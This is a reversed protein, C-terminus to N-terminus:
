PRPGLGNVVLESTPQARVPDTTTWIVHIRHATRTADGFAAQITGTAGPALNMPFAPTTLVFQQCTPTMQESCPCPNAGSPCTVTPDATAVSLVDMPADGINEISVDIVDGQFLDGNFDGVRAVPAHSGGTAVVSVINFLPDNSFFTLMGNDGTAVDACSGGAPILATCEEIGDACCVSGRARYTVYLTASEQATCSADEVGAPCIVPKFTAPDIPQTRENDTYFFLDKSVPQFTLRSFSLPVNGENRIVITGHREELDDMLGFEFRPVASGNPLEDLCIPAGGDEVATCLRLVPATGRGHLTVVKEAAQLSSTTLKVSGEVEGIAAPDFAIAVTRKEGPAYNGLIESFDATFVGGADDVFEATRVELTNSGANQVEFSLTPAGGNRDDKPTDRRNRAVDGFELNSPKVVVAAAIGKGSLSVDAENDEKANSIIHVGGTAAGIAPPTFTVTFVGTGGPPVSIAPALLGFGDGTVVASVSLVASGNNKVEINKQASDGVGVDGFALTDPSVAMAANLKVAQEGGCDCAALSALLLLWALSRTTM